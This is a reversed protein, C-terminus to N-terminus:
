TNVLLSKNMLNSYQNFLWETVMFNLIADGLYELREYNINSNSNLNTQDTQFKM